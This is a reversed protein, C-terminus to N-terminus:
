KKVCSVVPYLTTNGTSASVAIVCFISPPTGAMQFVEVVGGGPNTIKALLTPTDSKVPIVNPQVYIYTSLSAVIGGLVAILIKAYGSM